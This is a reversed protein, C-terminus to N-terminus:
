FRMQKVIFVSFILVSLVCFLGVHWIWLYTSGIHLISLLAFLPSMAALVPVAKFLSFPIFPLFTIFLALGYSIAKARVPSIWLAMGMGVLTFFICSMLLVVSCRVWQSLALGGIYSSLLMLPVTLWIGWAAWFVVAILKGALIKWNELPALALLASNQRRTKPYAHEMDMAEVAHRPVLFQAMFLAIIFFTYTQKGVDIPSGTSSGAYFETTAVFLLLALVCLVLFQIRRYKHSNAYCHLDKLIVALM